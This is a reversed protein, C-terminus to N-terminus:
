VVRLKTSRKARLGCVHLFSLLDAGTLLDADYEVVLEPSAEDRYEVDVVGRKGLLRGAIWDRELGNLRERVQIEYTRLNIVSHLM